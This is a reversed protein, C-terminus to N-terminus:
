NMVSKEATVHQLLIVNAYMCLQRRRADDQMTPCVNQWTHLATLYSVCINRMKKGRKCLSADDWILQLSGITVLMRNRTSVTTNSCAHQHIWLFIRAKISYDNKKGGKDIFVTLNCKNFYPKTVASSASFRSYLMSTLLREYKGTFHKISCAFSWYYHFILTNRHTNSM